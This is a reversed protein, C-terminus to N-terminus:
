SIIYALVKVQEKFNYTSQKSDLVKIGKENRLHEYHRALWQAM